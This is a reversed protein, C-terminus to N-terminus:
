YVKVNGENYAKSIIENKLEERLDKIRINLIREKINNKEFSLPSTTNKLKYDIVNLFYHYGNEEFRTKSRKMIFRDKNIDYLPIEKLLDDFYIWNDDDYYFNSAYIKAYVEIEEIDTDKYLKYKYNIKDIDPADSPIKLYLVKVLYDNLQFDQQHSNYYEEIEADTINTDLQEDVMRQELEIIYMDNRFNQVKREIKEQDIKDNKQAEQVLIQDKIWEDIFEKAIQASDEQTYQIDKLYSKLNSEFLEEENVSALLEGKDEGDSCATLITLILIPIFHKV